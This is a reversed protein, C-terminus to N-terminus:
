PSNIFWANLNEKMESMDIGESDIKLDFSNNIQKFHKENLEFM